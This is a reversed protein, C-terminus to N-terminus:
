FAPARDIHPTVMIILDSQEDTVLEQRFLAGIVPLNMLVPIGSTMTSFDTSTLGSIVTTAGDEVLIQTTTEATGFVFQGDPTREAIFSREAHLDLRIQDGVVSPTIQLIVGVEEMRVQAQPGQAGAAGPDVVRIPVRSGVQIRATHNNLVRVTPDAQLQALQVSQAADLWAVLTHRNLLLSAVATFTADTVKEMANGIAAITSGGV